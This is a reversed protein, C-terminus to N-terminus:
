CNVTPSGFLNSGVWTGQGTQMNYVTCAYALPEEIQLSTVTPPTYTKGEDKNAM